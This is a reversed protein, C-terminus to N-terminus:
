ILFIKQRLNTKETLINLLSFPTVYVRGFVVSRGTSKAPATETQVKVTFPHVGGEYNCMRM